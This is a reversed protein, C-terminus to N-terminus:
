EEGRAKKLVAEFHNRMGDPMELDTLADCVCEYMEPAASILHCNAAAQEESIVSNDFCQAIGTKDTVVSFDTVYDGTDALEHDEIEARWEGQTFKEDSMKIAKRNM